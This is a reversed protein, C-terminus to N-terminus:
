IHWRNRLIEIEICMKIMLVSNNVLEVGVEQFIIYSVSGNPNLCRRHTPLYPVWPLISSGRKDENINIFLSYKLQNM